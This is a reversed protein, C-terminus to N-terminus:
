HKENRGAGIRHSQLQFGLKDSALAEGRSVNWGRLGWKGERHSPNSLLAFVNPALTRALSLHYTWFLQISSFKILTRNVFTLAPSFSSIIKLLRNLAPDMASAGGMWFCPQPLPPPDPPRPQVRRGAPTGGGRSGSGLQCSCALSGRHHVPKGLASSLSPDPLACGELITTLVM